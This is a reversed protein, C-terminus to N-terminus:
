SHRLALVSVSRRFGKLAQNGAGFFEFAFIGRGEQGLTGASFCEGSVESHWFALMSVSEEGFEQTGSHWSQFVLGWVRSYRLALM